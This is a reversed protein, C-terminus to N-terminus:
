CCWMKMLQSHIYRVQRARPNGEYNLVVYDAMMMKQEASFQNRMRDLLQQRSVHDRLELRQLREEQELYVCVVKDAKKDFEYEYAIASEFIVYPANRHQKAFLQFDAWVRPHILANLKELAERDNFVAQAIVRKDVGKGARVGEGLLSVVEECFKADNYYNGAVEDAVFCPVGLKRFENLVTTKGCGIGGTLVVTKM